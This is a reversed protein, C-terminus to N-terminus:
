ARSVYARTDAVLEGYLKAAGDVDFPIGNREIQSCLWQADHELARSHALV